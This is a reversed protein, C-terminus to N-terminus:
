YGPLQFHFSGRENEEEPEEEEQEPKPQGQGEAMAEAKNGFTIAVRSSIFNRGSRDLRSITLDVTEGASFYELERLFADKGSVSTGDIGTIIDGKELGAEDAPGDKVVEVVYVGAPYGMNVYSSPMDTCTIGVWAAQSPDAKERATRSGLRDLIPEAAAMPIAYGVGEVTADVYKVENIGILEGRMNLLAGGSNGPNISADTQILRHVSGNVTVERNLASVIGASVSQGYGLANGIAVVQEGVVCSDSDGIQVVRIEDKTSQKLDSLLVSVIALDEQDDAGKVTGSVAEEDVFTVTIEASDAIVHNNTAILLETDTEGVIIGSGASVAEREEARGFIDYYESISTNTIAVMSPMCHEVVEPITLDDTQVEAEEIEREEKEPTKGGDEEEGDMDPLLSEVAEPDSAEGTNAIRVLLLTCAGVIGALLLAVAACIAIVVGTKRRPKKGDKGSQGAASGGTGPRQERTEFGPPTQFRYADYPSHYPEKGSTQGFPDGEQPFSNEPAQGNGEANVPDTGAPDQNFYEDM